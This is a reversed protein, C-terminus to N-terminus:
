RREGGVEAFGGNRTWEFVKSYRGFRSEFWANESQAIRKGVALTGGGALRLSTLAQGEEELTNVVITHCAFGKKALSRVGDLVEASPTATVFFLAGGRSRYQNRFFKQLFGDVSKASWVNGERATILRDLLVRLHRSGFGPQLRVPTEGLVLLGLRNGSGVLAHALEYSAAIVDKRGSWNGARPVNGQLLDVILVCDLGRESHWENVLRKGLRASAKWNVDRLPDGFIHSRINMFELRGGKYRSPASGAFSLAKARGALVKRTLLRPYIKVSVPAVLDIRRETLDFLSQATVVCEGFHVEGPELLSVEYRLTAREGAKLATVMRPSGRKVLVGAPLVDELEVRDQDVGDNKLSLEMLVPEGEVLKSQAVRRSVSFAVERKSKKPFGQDLLLMVIVPVAALGIGSFTVVSLWVGISAVVFVFALKGKLPV